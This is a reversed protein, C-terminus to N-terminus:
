DSGALVQPSAATPRARQHDGRAPQQGQPRGGRTPPRAAAKQGNCTALGHGVVRAPPKATALWRQMCVADVKVLPEKRLRYRIEM